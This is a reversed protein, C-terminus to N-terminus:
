LSNLYEIRKKLREIEGMRWALFMKRVAEFRWAANARGYEMRSWNSQHTNFQKAMDIVKIKMLKRYTKILEGERIMEQTTKM